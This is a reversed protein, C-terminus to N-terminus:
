QVAQTSPFDASSYVLALIAHLAGGGGLMGSFFQLFCMILMFSMLILARDETEQWGHTNTAMKTAGCVVM